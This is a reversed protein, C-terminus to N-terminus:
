GRFAEIHERCWAEFTCPPQGTLRPLTDTVIAGENKRLSTLMEMLANVLAKDMGSKLMFLKAAIPLIDMYQIPKGLAGSIVQVMEGITFLEPGTLEYAQGRHGPQTLAIAAVKAVDRPDVPAVKGKKGGPFYVAGQAKISASWWDISNSMFMGPRLFTWDLGSARILEEREYYWQGVKIKHETAERTSLKVIHQVGAHKATTIFNIDQQTEFTVLFVCDVGQLAPTLTEPKNWDGVVREICPDLFAVKREDRVLVRIAQGAELLLSILEKGIHGTAGTILIM